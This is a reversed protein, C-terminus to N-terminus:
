IDTDNQNANTNTNTCTKMMIINVIHDYLSSKRVNYDTVWDAANLEALSPVVEHNWM